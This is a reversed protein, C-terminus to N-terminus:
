SFARGDEEIMLMLSAINPTTVSKFPPIGNWGGLSFLPGSLTETSFEEIKKKMQARINKM